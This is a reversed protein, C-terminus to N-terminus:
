FFISEPTHWEIMVQPLSIRRPEGYSGTIYYNRAIDDHMEKQFIGKIRSTKENISNSLPSCISDIAKYTRAWDITAYDKETWLRLYIKLLEQRHDIMNKFAIGESHRLFLLYVAKNMPEMVIEKNDLDPLVIRYDKTIVLRSLVPECGVLQRIYYEGVGKAYLRRALEQIQRVLEQGEKDLDLSYDRRQYDAIDLRIHGLHCVITDDCILNCLNTLYEEPTAKCKEADFHFLTFEVSNRGYGDLLLSSENMRAFGPKISKRQQTDHLYDLLCSISLPSATMHFQKVWPTHYRVCEELLEGTIAPLYFFTKQRTNWLHDQIFALNDRILANVEEDYEAEIYFVEDRIPTMPCGTLIFNSFDSTEFHDM